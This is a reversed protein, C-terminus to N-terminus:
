KLGLLELEEKSFTTQLKAKANQLVLYKRQSEAEREYYDTVEREANELEYYMDWDVLKADLVYENEWGKEKYVKFVFTLEDEFGSAKEVQKFSFNHINAYQAMLKMLRQPYEAQLIAFAMERAAQAEVNKEEKIKRAM